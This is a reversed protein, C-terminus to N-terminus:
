KDIFLLFILSGLLIKITNSREGTFLIALLLILFFTLHYVKKKTFKKIFQWYLFIFGGIFAGAIPEDKFFENNKSWATSFVMINEQVGVLFIEGSFFEIYVDFALVVM